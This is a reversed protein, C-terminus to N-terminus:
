QASKSLNYKKFRTYVNSRSLGSIRCIENIDGGTYHVLNQFYEKETFEMMEKLSPFSTHHSDIDPSSKRTEKVSSRALQSRIHIPLHIPFLTPEDRSESLANEVAHNLERVNGPWQYRSLAEIFEPSYGKQGPGYKSSLEKLYYLAINKIDRGRDRLPPIHISLSQLRFLLDERFAETKIMADIDRNTAAIVRFDSVTDKKGGVPRFRREQLVRLFAKQQSVPLEGVEDLFLTGGDAERILGERTRDAGTFAGKEHGFLTSIILNEPLVACDVVVFANESRDSNEHIARAFREKGTGTEGTILVNADTDAAKALLDMCQAMEPSSGIIGERKLVRPRTRKSKEERYQLVRTLSLNIKEVSLPKQIYDWSGSKIALEAGDKSGVGTIIVVEPSGPAKKIDPIVEIGNGDPLMVDLFVLDFPEMCALELGQKLRSAYFHRHGMAQVLSSLAEGVAKDDDIILIHAM